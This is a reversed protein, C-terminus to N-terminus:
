FLGLLLFFVGFYYCLCFLSYYIDFLWCAICLYFLDFMVYIWLGSLVCLCSALAFVDM